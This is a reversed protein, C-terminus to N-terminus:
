AHHAAIVDLGVVDFAELETARDRLVLPRLVAGVEVAGSGYTGSTRRRACSRSRERVRARAGAPSRAARGPSGRRLCGATRSPACSPTAHLSRRIRIASCRSSPSVPRTTPVTAARAITSVRSPRSPAIRTKSPLWTPIPPLSSAGTSRRPRDRNRGTAASAARSPRGAPIRSPPASRASSRAKKSSSSPRARSSTRSGSPMRTGSHIPITM